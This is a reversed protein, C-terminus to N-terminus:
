AFCSIVAFFDSLCAFECIIDFFLFALLCVFCHALRIDCCSSFHLFLILLFFHLVWKNIVCHFCASDVGCWFCILLFLFIWFYCFFLRLFFWLCVAFFCVVQANLGSTFRTLSTWLSFTELLLKKSLLFGILSFKTGRPIYPTESLVWCVCWMYM